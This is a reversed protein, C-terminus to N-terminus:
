AKFSRTELAKGDNGKLKEVSRTIRAQTSETTVPIREPRAGAQCAEFSSGALARRCSHLEVEFIEEGQGGHFLDSKDITKRMTRLVQYMFVSEFEQCAKKLDKNRQELHNKEPTYDPSHIKMDKM